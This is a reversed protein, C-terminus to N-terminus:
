RSPARAEPIERGDKYYTRVEFASARVNAEEGFGFTLIHANTRERMDLVTLDDFNLVAWGSIPLAEVLRAKERALTKPGAFFEVHVPIEGIATIVAINPPALKALEAMNHPRDAAMELVLVEPYRLTLFSAILGKALRVGWLVINRGAPVIGLVACPVGIETNRNLVSARVADHYQTRLVAYIAEKASTKGVSGTIAVVIPKRRVIVLRALIGLIFALFSRM